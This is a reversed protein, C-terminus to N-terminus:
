KRVKEWTPGACILGGMICGRLKLQNESVLTLTGDYTGGDRTNYLSGKWQLPAVKKGGNMIVVGVVPRDRLAPNPNHVDKRGPEKVQVVKACASEGCRYMQIHSGSDPDRWVGLVDEDSLAQAETSAICFAAVAIFLAAPMRM